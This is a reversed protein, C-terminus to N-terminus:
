AEWSDGYVRRGEINNMEVVISQINDNMMVQFSSKIDSVRAIAYRIPGPTLKRINASSARGTQSFPELSWTINKDKSQILQLAQVNDNSTDIDSIDDAESSPHINDDSTHNEEESINEESDSANVLAELQEDSLVRKAM